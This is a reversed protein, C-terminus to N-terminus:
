TSSRTSPTPWSASRTRRAPHRDPHADREAIGAAEDPNRLREVLAPLKDTSLTYAASTLKKLPVTMARAVYFAIILAIVIAGVAGVFFLLATQQADSRVTQANALM